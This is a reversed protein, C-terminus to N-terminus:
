SPPGRHAKLFFFALFAGSFGFEGTVSLCIQGEQAGSPYVDFICRYCGEDSPQASKITISSTDYQSPTLEVSPLHTTIQAPRGPEYALLVKSHMDLWRVQRVDYNTEMTINCGLTVPHGEVANLSAPAMVEGTVCVCVFWM